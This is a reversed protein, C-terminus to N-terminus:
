KKNQEIYIALSEKWRQTHQINIFLLFLKRNVQNIINIEVFLLHGGIM